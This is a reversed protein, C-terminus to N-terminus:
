FKVLLTPIDDINEAIEVGADRLVNIKRQASGYDNTVVAGAHDLIFKAPASKGVILAVVSKTFHRSIYNAAAEEIEGSIEGLLLVNETCQNFIRRM